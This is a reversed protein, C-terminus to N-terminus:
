SSSSSAHGTSGFGGRSIGSSSSSRSVGSSSSRSYTPSSRYVPRYPPTYGTRYPIPLIFVGGGTHYRHTSAYGPQSAFSSQALPQTTPVAPAAGGVDSSPVPDLNFGDDVVEFDTNGDDDTASVTPPNDDDQSDCGTFGLGLLNLPVLVLSLLATSKRTNKNM